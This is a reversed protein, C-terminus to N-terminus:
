KEKVNEKPTYGEAVLIKIMDAVRLKLAQEANQDKLIKEFTQYSKDLEGIKMELIGKQESFYFHMIKSRSELKTVQKLAEQSAAKDTHADTKIVIIKAALLGSLERLYNDYRNSNAIALYVKLAEDNDGSNLLIGGYRLAALGKAGSPAFNTAYIEQLGKKAADINGKEEEVLAQHLIASYKEQASKQYLNFLFLIILFAVAAGALLTFLKKRKVFFGAIIDIKNPTRAKNLLNLINNKNFM